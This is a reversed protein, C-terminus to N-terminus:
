LIPSIYNAAIVEEDRKVKMTTIIMAAQM